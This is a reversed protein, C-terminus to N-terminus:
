QVDVVKVFHTTMEGQMEQGAFAVELGLPDYQFTSIHANLTVARMPSLQLFGSQPSYLVDPRLAHGPLAVFLFLLLPAFAPLILRRLCM